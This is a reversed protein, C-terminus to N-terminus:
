EAFVPEISRGAPATDPTIKAASTSPLPYISSPFGTRSGSIGERTILQWIDEPAPLNM